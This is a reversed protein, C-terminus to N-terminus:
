SNRVKEIKEHLYFWEPFLKPRVCIFDHLKDMSYMLKYGKFMMRDLDIEKQTRDQKQVADYLTNFIKWCWENDDLAKCEELYNTYEDSSIEDSLFALNGREIIDAKIKGSQSRNSMDDVLSEYFLLKNM